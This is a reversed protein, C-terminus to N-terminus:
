CMQACAVIQAVITSLLRSGPLPSVSNVLTCNHLYIRRVSRTSGDRVLTIVRKRNSKAMRSPYSGEISM